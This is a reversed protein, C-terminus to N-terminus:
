IHWLNRNKFQYVNNTLDTTTQMYDANDNTKRLIAQENNKTSLSRLTRNSM